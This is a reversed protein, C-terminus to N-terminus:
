ETLIAFSVAPSLPMYGDDLICVKLTASGSVDGKVPVTVSTTGGSVEVSRLGIGTFRGAADYFPVAATVTRTQTGSYRLPLTIEKLGALNAATIAEGDVTPVSAVAFVSASDRVVIEGATFRVPVNKADLNTLNSAKDERLAVSVPVTGAAAERVELELTFLVGDGDASEVDYWQVRGDEAYAQFTGGSLIEGREVRKLKLLSADYRVDLMAGKATWCSFARKM